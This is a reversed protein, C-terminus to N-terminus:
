VKSCNGALKRTGPLLPCKLVPRGPESSDFSYKVGEFKPKTIWVDIKGGGKSFRILKRGSPPNSGSGKLRKCPSPCSVNVGYGRAPVAVQWWLVKRGRTLYQRIPAKGFAVSPCGTVATGKVTKCSDSTDPVGDADEDALGPKTFLDCVDGIGDGDADAQNKNATSPCNDVLDGIGDKDGDPPNTVRSSFSKPSSWAGARLADHARVEVTWDGESKPVLTHEAGLTYTECPDGPSVKCLRVDYGSVPSGADPAAATFALDFAIKGDLPARPKVVIGEPASPATNDVKLQFAQEKRNGASDTAFATLTNVGDPLKTTDVSSGYSPSRPCPILNHFDCGQTSVPPGAGISADVGLSRVGVNDSTNFSVPKAGQFWGSQANLGTLSPASGDSVTLKVDRMVAIGYRATRLCTAQACIILLSVKSTSLASNVVPQGEPSNWTCNYLLGCSVWKNPSSGEDYIGSAWGGSGSVPSASFIRLSASISTFSTGDPATATLGGAEFGSADNPNASSKISSAVTMGLGMSYNGPANQAATCSADAYVSGHNSPTPARKVFVNSNINDAACVDVVYTGASASEAAGFLGIAMALGVGLVVARPHIEM